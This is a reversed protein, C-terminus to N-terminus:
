FKQRAQIKEWVYLSIKVQYQFPPYLGPRLLGGQDTATCGNNDEANVIYTSVGESSTFSEGNSVGNSWTYTSAGSANLIIEEGSCIFIDLGADLTTLANITLDLTVISDCGSITSLVYTASNNDSTGTIEMLGLILIVLRSCMQPSCM